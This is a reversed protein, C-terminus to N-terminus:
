EHHLSSMNFSLEDLVYEESLQVRFDSEEAPTEIHFVLNLSGVYLVRLFGGNGIKVCERGVPTTNLNFLNRSGGTFM